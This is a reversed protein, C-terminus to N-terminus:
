RWYKRNKNLFLISNFLFLSIVIIVFIIKHLEKIEGSFPFINSYLIVINMGILYTIAGISGWENEGKKNLFRNLKYFLYYYPNM